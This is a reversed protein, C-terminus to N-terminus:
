GNDEELPEFATNEVPPSKKRKKGFIREYNERYADLNEGKRGSTIKNNNRIDGDKSM